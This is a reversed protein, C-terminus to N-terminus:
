ISNTPTRGPRKREDDRLKIVWRTGWSSPATPQKIPRVFHAPFNWIICACPVPICGGRFSRAPPAFLAPFWYSVDAPLVHGRSDFFKIKVVGSSTWWRFSKTWLRNPYNQPHRAGERPDAPSICVRPCTHRAPHPQWQPVASIKRVHHPVLAPLNRCEWGVRGDKFGRTVTSHMHLLNGNLFLQCKGSMINSQHVPNALPDTESVTWVVDRRMKTSKRMRPKTEISRYPEQYRKNIKKQIWM